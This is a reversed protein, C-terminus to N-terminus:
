IKVDIAYRKEPCILEVLLSPHSVLTELCASDMEEEPRIGDRESFRPKRPGPNVAKLMAFALIRCLKRPYVFELFAPHRWLYSDYPNEVWCGLHLQTAIRLVKAMWEADFNGEDLKFQLTSSADKRGLPEAESRIPPRVATSFSSCTIASGLMFFCGERLINEIWCRVKRSRLDQETGDQLEFTLCWTGPVWAAAARAVGKEGSFLHLIVPRSPPWATEAGCSDFILIRTRPIEGLLAM